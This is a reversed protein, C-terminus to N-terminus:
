CGVMGHRHTATLALHLTCSGMASFCRRGSTKRLPNFAVRGGSSGSGNGPVSGQLVVPGGFKEAGTTIDLAHLRQVWTSSREKTAAVVYLTGSASDIVPTSTIGIQDLIDGCEGTDGCPVTTVGSKLFSVHWLPNSTLGDADFAYVSDNETAAYVINHFGQGPINANAVYLPSAFAIGDLSYSFLKGFQNENVKSLTLVIENANQGTRLNDNHYTFTGPYNTVYVSANAFQSSTTATVTHVGSSAPPTYLGTSTILGM